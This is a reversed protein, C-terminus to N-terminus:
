ATHHHGISVHHRWWISVNEANSARQAPFEGTGPSSGACLGTVCLKATRKSRSDRGNHRWQLPWHQLSIGSETNNSPSRANGPCWCYDYQSFQNFKDEVIFVKWCCAGNWPRSLYSFAFIYEHKRYSSFTEMRHRWWTNHQRWWISVNEENSARQSPFKGTVPSNGECLCTVLLMSTKKSRCRFLRNLLCDLRRPNSVVDREDHNWLLSYQLDHYTLGGTGSAPSAVASTRRVFFHVSVRCSRRSPKTFMEPAVIECTNRILQSDIACPHRVHPAYPTHIVIGSRIIDRKLVRGNRIWPALPTRVAYMGRVRPPWRSEIAYPPRIYLVHAAYMGFRYICRMIHPSRIHCKFTWTTSNMHIWINLKMQRIQYRLHIM